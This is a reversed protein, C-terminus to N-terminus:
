QWGNRIKSERIAMETMHIDIRGKMAMWDYYKNGENGNNHTCILTEFAL